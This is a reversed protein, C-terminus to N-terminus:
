RLKCLPKSPLLDRVRKKIRRLKGRWGIYYKVDWPDDLINDVVIKHWAKAEEVSRFKHNKAGVSSQAWQEWDSEFAFHESWPYDMHEVYVLPFYYGNVYGKMAMRRWYGPTGDSELLGCERVAKLKVLGGAGGTWPHRLIQHHGYRQIKHRARSEDFFEKGLHWCGLLGFEPVDAHAQALPRTWGPTVLLDNPVIGVLDASSKSFLYNVAGRLGLNEESFVKEVIRPDNVSSLYERTGDTSGNDWITLRFEELPDALVSALALKTYDLRNHAIFILDIKM